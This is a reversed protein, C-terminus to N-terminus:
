LVNRKCLTQVSKADNNFNIGDIGFILTSLRKIALDLDKYVTRNSLCEVAAITPVDFNPDDIYRMKLIRYRRKEEDNGSKECFIECMSVMDEIHKVIIATRLKSSKISEIYIEDDDMDDGMMRGLLKEPLEDLVDSSSYVAHGAHIVFMRYNQLLLKTNHLRRDSRTKEAKKRVGEMHEIAVKAGEEAAMRLIKEELESLNM